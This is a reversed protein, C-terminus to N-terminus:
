FAMTHDLNEMGNLTGREQRPSRPSNIGSEQRPSRPSNIGSEQRPSRPSNLKKNQRQGIPLQSPKQPKKSPSSVAKNHQGACSKVPKGSLPTKSQPNATISKKTSTKPFASM